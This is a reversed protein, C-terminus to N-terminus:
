RLLSSFDELDGLSNNTLYNHYMLLQLAVVTVMLFAAVKPLGKYPLQADGKLGFLEKILSFCPEVSPKRRRYLLVAQVTHTFSKYWQHFATDTKSELKTLLLIGFQSFLRRITRVAQYAADGVVMGVWDKLPVLLPELCKHECFSATGACAHVPFRSENALVLLGYGFRWGHYASKAWSAGPDISTHPVVGLLMHKKHWVGGRARFISKDSFLWHLNFARSCLHKFCHLAIWPLFVALVKPLLLFRRRITKRSPPKPFAWHQWRKKAVKEMGQFTFVKSLFMSIFFLIFSAHSFTKATGGKLRKEHEAEYSKECAVLMEHIKSLKSSMEM